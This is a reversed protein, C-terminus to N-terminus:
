VMSSFSDTAREQRTPRGAPAPLGARVRRRGAQEGYWLTQLPICDWCMMERGPGTAWSSWRCYNRSCIDAVAWSVCTNPTESGRKCSSVAPGTQTSAARGGLDGPHQIVPHGQEPELEPELAAKRSGNAPEAGGCSPEAPSHRPASEAGQGRVSLFIIDLSRHAFAIGRETSIQALAGQKMLLPGPRPASTSCLPVWGHRSSRAASSHLFLSGQTCKARELDTCVTLLEEAPAPM